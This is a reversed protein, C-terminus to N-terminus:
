SLDLGVFQSDPLAAAMSILNGGTGCGLELVRCREVPAPAMGLLTALSALCDPHTAYQPKSDYPVEDYATVPRELMTFRETADPNVAVALCPWRKGQRM